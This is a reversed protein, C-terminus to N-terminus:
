QISILDPPVTEQSHLIGNSLQPYINISWNQSNMLKKLFPQKFTDSISYPSKSSYFNFIKLSVGFVESHAPFKERSWFLTMPSHSRWILKRMHAHKTINAQSLERIRMKMKINRCSWWWCPLVNPLRNLQTLQKLCTSKRIKFSAHRLSAWM